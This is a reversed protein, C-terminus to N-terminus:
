SLEGVNEEGGAVKKLIDLYKEKVVVGIGVLLDAADEDYSNLMKALNVQNDYVNISGDEITKEITNLLEIEKNTIDSTYLMYQQKYDDFLKEARQQNFELVPLNSEVFSTIYEIPAKKLDEKLKELGGLYVLYNEGESIYLDREIEYIEMKDGGRLVISLM